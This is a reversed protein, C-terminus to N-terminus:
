SRLLPGSRRVTSTIPDGDPRKVPDTRLALIPAYM